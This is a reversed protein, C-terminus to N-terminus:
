GGNVFDVEEANHEAKNALSCWAGCWDTELTLLLVSQQGWALAPHWAPLHIKILLTPGVEASPEGTGVSLATYGLFFFLLQLCFPPKPNM